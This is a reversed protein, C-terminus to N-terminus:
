SVITANHISNNLISTAGTTLNQTSNNVISSVTENVVPAEGSILKWAWEPGQFGVYFGILLGGFFDEISVIKQVGTRRAFAVVAMASFVISLAIYALNSLGFDYKQDSWLRVFGGLIGGFIAGVMIAKLGVQLDLETKVTDLHTRYDVGYRFQIELILRVPTFALWDLREGRTKLVIQKCIRDDPQLIYPLPKLGKRLYDRDITAFGEAVGIEKELSNGIENIAVLESPIMTEVSYIIVPKEFPNTVNVFVSFQEGAVILPKSVEVEVKLDGRSVPTAMIEDSPLSVATREYIGRNHLNSLESRLQYLIVENSKFHKEMMGVADTFILFSEFLNGYERDSLVSRITILIDKPGFRNGSFLDNVYDHNYIWIGEILPKAEDPRSKYLPDIYEVGIKILYEIIEYTGAEKLTEYPDKGFREIKIDMCKKIDEKHENLLKPASVDCPGDSKDADLQSEKAM